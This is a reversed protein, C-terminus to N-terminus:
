HCWIMPYLTPYRKDLVRQQRSDVAICHRDPPMAPTCMAGPRM